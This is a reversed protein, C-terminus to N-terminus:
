VNGRQGRPGGEGGFMREFEEFIDGFGASKKFQDSFGDFGGFGGQGGFPNGGAFPNQGGFPDQAQEDGTM